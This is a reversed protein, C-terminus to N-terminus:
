GGIREHLCWIPYTILWLILIPITILTKLVIMISEYIVEKIIGKRINQIDKKHERLLHIGIKFYLVNHISYHNIINEEETIVKTCYKCMAKSTM